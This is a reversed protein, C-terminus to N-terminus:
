RARNEECEFRVMKHGTTVDERWTLRVIKRGAFGLRNAEQVLRLLFRQYASALEEDTTCLEPSSM